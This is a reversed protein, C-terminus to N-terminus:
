PATLWVDFASVSRLKNNRFLGLYSVDEPAYYAKHPVDCSGGDFDELKLEPHYQDRRLTFQYLAVGREGKLQNVERIVLPTRDRKGYSMSWARILDLDEVPRTAAYGLIADTVDDDFRLALQQAKAAVQADSLRPATNILDILRRLSRRCAGDSFDVPKLTAVVSCAESKAAVATTLMGAGVM